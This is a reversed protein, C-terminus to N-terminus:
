LKIASKLAFKRKERWFLSIERSIGIFTILVARNANHATLADALVSLVNNRNVKEVDTKIKTRGFQM